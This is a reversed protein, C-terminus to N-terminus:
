KKSVPMTVLENFTPILRKEEARKRPHHAHCLTIGNNTKYRLEPFESWRLIHHVELRGDCNNDAIRCTYNDRKKVEIRWQKVLPDHLNRGGLKILSRDPIWKWNKEKAYLAGKHLVCYTRNRSSLIVGCEKCSPKGGKWGHHKDGKMNFSAKCSSSCFIANDQRYPQVGFSEKCKKCELFVTEKKNVPLIGTKLGKNWPIIGKKFRGNNM